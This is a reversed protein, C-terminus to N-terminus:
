EPWSFAAVIIAGSFSYAFFVAVVIYLPSASTEAELLSFERESDEDEFLKKVSNGKLNLNWDRFKKHFIFAPLSDTASMKKAMWMMDGLSVAVVDYVSIAVLIWVVTWASVLAGFVAGVGVLTLLLLLNQLWLLPLFFWLLGVIVGIILSGPFPVALGLIIFTGWAYFCGFLVRLVIKLKSIPILYLIVGIVIVVGFFYLLIPLLDIEPPEGIQGSAILEKEPSIYLFAIVLGIIYLLSSWLM